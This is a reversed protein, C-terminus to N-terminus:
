EGSEDRGYAEIEFPNDRYPRGGAIWLYLSCLLYAPGMLPGWREYQAVHVLEHRHALDLSTENPGFITHGLTFALVWQGEPTAYILWRIGGDYFELVRGRRRVKGGFCLGIGGILLGMLTYPSAWLFKLLQLLARM